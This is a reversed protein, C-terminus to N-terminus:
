FPRTRIAVQFEELYPTFWEYVKLAGAPLSKGSALYTYLAEIENLGVQIFGEQNSVPLWRAFRKTESFYTKSLVRCKREFAKRPLRITKEAFCNYSISWVPLAPKFARHVALCVDQHHPHGYEGLVGHTFVESPTELRLREELRGLDLRTDFRDPFDWMEARAVKFEKCAALFDRERRDHEGDANGDTVCIVKWPRRRYMQLLGGGFITEDDPHAAVLLNYKKM